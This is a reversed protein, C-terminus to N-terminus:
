CTRAHPFVCGGTNTGGVLDFYDRPLPTDRLGEERRIREMIDELIKLTSLGRIGGGDISDTRTQIPPSSSRYRPVINESTTGNRTRRRLSLGRSVELKLYNGSFLRLGWSFMPPPISSRSTTQFFYHERADGLYISWTYLLPIDLRRMAASRHPWLPRASTACCQRVQPQLAQDIQPDTIGARSQNRWM